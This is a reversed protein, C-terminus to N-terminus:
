IEEEPEYKKRRNINRGGTLLIGEEPWYYKKRRDIINRGGTL